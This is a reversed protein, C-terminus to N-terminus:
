STLAELLEELRDFTGKYGIHMNPVLDTFAKAEGETAKIPEAKFTLRTKGNHETLTVTNLIENPWVDFWPNKGINGKEDTFSSIFVIRDIPTIESYIFRAWAVLGDAFQAKYHFMGGPEAIMQLIDTRADKPGWWKAIMEAKTWANFVLEQPANLDRTIVFETGHENIIENKSAM